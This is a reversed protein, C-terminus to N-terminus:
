MEDKDTFSFYAKEKPTIILHDLLSINFLELAQNLSKTSKKDQVSPELNGSPHNHAIIISTAACKLAAAIILRIDMITGDIGGSSHINYGIINSARNLFIVIFTEQLGITDPDYLSYIFDYADKSSKIKGYDRRNIETPVYKLQIEAVFESQKM